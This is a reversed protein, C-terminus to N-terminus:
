LFYAILFFLELDGLEKVQVVLDRYDKLNLKLSWLLFSQTKSILTSFMKLQYNTQMESSGLEGQCSASLSEKIGCATLPTLFPVLKLISSKFRLRRM